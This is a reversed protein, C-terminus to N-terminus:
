RADSWWLLLSGPEPWRCRHVRQLPLQVPCGSAGVRRLLLAMRRQADALRLVGYMGVLAFTTAPMFMRAEQSYWVLFPNLALLLAGLMAARRGGLRRGIGYAPLVALAGILAGLSRVAFDDRGM